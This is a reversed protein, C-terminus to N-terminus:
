CRQEGSGPLQEPFLLMVVVTGSGLFLLLEEEDGLGCASFIFEAIKGEWGFWCLQLRFLM